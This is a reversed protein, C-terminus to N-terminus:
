HELEPIGEMNNFVFTGEPYIEPDSLDLDPPDPDLSGPDDAPAAILLPDLLGPDDAPAPVLEPTVPM